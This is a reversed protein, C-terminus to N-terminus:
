DPQHLTAALKLGDSYFYNYSDLAAGRLHEISRARSTPEAGAAARRGRIEQM